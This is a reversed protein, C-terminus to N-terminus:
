QEEQHMQRLSEITHRYLLVRRPEDTRAAYQELVLLAQGETMVHSDLNELVHVIMVHTSIHRQLAEIAELHEELLQTIWEHSM